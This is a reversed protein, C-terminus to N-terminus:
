DPFHSNLRDIQERKVERDREKGREQKGINQKRTEKLKQRDKARRKVFQLNVCSSLQEKLPGCINLMQLFKSHDRCKYYDRIIDKCQPFESLKPHVSSGRFYFVEEKYSEKVYNYQAARERIRLFHGYVPLGHWWSPTEKNSNEADATM